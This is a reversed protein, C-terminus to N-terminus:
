MINNSLDKIWQEQDDLAKAVFGKAEDSLL